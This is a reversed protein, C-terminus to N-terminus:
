NYKIDEDYMKLIEKKATKYSLNASKKLLDEDITLLVLDILEEFLKRNRYFKRKEDRLKKNLVKFEHKYTILIDNLRYNEKFDEDHRDNLNNIRDILDIYESFEMIVKDKKIEM